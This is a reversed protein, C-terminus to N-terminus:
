NIISLHKEETQSMEKKIRIFKYKVMNLINEM